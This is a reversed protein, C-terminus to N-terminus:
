SQPRRGYEAVRRSGLRVIDATEVPRSTGHDYYTREIAMVPAAPAVGLTQAESRSAQRATVREVPVGVEIGILAMRDAVGIGAHPGAEPLVVLSGGTAAMPERSEALQAPEGDALYVYNTHVVPDGPQIELRAAIRTDAAQPQSEHRWTGVVGQRAFAAETPSGEGAAM